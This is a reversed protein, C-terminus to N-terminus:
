SYITEYSTSYVRNQHQDLPLYVNSYWVSMGDDFSAAHGYTLSWDLVQSYDLVKLGANNNMFDTVNTIATAHTLDFSDYGYYFPEYFSYYFPFDNATTITQGARHTVLFSATAGVSTTNLMRAYPQEHVLVFHPVVMVLLLIILMRRKWKRLGTKSISLFMVPLGALAVSGFIIGRHASIWTLISFFSIGYVILASLLYAALIRTPKHNRYVITVYLCAVGLFVLLGKYYDTVIPGYFPQTTAGSPLWGFAVDFAVRLYYYSLLTSLGIGLLSYAEYINWTFYVTACSLFLSFKQPVQKRAIVWYVALFAIPLLSNLVHSIVLAGNTLVLLISKGLGDRTKIFLLMFMIVYILSLLRTNFHVFMYENLNFNMLLFAFLAGANPTQIHLARFTLVLLTVLFVTGLPLLLLLNSEFIGSGTVITTMAWLLFFGPQTQPYSLWTNEIHSQQIIGKVASGHLFVDRWLMPYNSWVEVISFSLVIVFLSSLPLDDKSVSLTLVVCVTLVLFWIIRSNMSLFDYYWLTSNAPNYTGILPFVALMLFPILMFARSVLKSVASDVRTSRSKRRASLMGWAGETPIRRKKV